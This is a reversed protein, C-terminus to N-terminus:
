VKWYISVALELFVFALAAVLFITRGSRPVTERPRPLADLDAPVRLVHGGTESAIRELAARDLGLAAYEPPCPITATARARGKRVVATGSLDAPLRGEWRQPGVQKMEVRVGETAFEPESYAGQAVVTPPDVSLSLGEARDGVAYDVAQEFLRALSADYGITLAVVRGSGYPRVAVVPDQKPARGVTGLVQADSKPSTRTIDPLPVRPVGATIPHPRFDPVGPNARTLDQIRDSVGALAKQLGQWDKMVVNEDAGPVTKNTTIVFLGINKSHLQDIAAKIDEPKELTEGDTMLVVVKRGADGKSEAGRSELHLRAATMGAILSTGGSPREKRLASLEMIKAVNTFTMGVVDDDDDFAWRADELTQVASEYVPTMSGSADIGLVVSVKLDPHVKLPSLQELPARQWGGRAYSKEGGLLVLGGGNKVYDALRAQDEKPLVVNDLVVADAVIPDPLRAAATVDFRPLMLTSASLVLVESRGSEDFVKGTATNNEKCDDDAEITAVFPGPGSRPFGLVTVIGAQLPVSRVDADVSVKCAVDYTSEVALALTWAEGPRVAAPARLRRFRVDRVSTPGLPFVHVPVGRQRCLFLADGPDGRGDTYLIIETPNRALAASLALPLNSASKDVEESEWALTRGFSAWTVTDGSAKAERDYAIIERANKPTLSERPGAVLVSGSRDVLHIRVRDASRRPLPVDLAAAGLLLVIM